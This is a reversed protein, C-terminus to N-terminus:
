PTVFLLADSQRIADKPAIAEPSDADYDPSYLSLNGIPM